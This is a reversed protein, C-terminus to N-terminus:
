WSCGIGWDLKARQDGKVGLYSTSFVLLGLQRDYSENAQHCESRREVGGDTIPREYADEADSYQRESAAEKEM